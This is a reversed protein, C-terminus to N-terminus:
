ANNLEREIEQSWELADRLGALYGRQIGIEHISDNRSEALQTGRELIEERIRKELMDRFSASM